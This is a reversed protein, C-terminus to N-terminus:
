FISATHKKSDLNNLINDSINLIAHTTSHNSRYGFQYPSLINHKKFFSTLRKKVLKEILKSTCSLISIPRWDGRNVTNGGKFIPIVTAVKLCDPFYGQLFRKNILPPLIIALAEKGM